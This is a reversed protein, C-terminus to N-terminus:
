RAEPSIRYAQHCAVCNRMTDALTKNIKAAPARAAAQEAIQDFGSRVSGIMAKWADSEKAALTPPRVLAANAKRGRAAAERAVLDLDGSGLGEEVEVVTALFLRMQELVFAKEADTRQVPERTDTPQEAGAPCAIAGLLALVAIVIPAIRYRMSSTRRNVGRMISGILPSPGNAATFMTQHRIM